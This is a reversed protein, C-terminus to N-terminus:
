HILGPRRSRKSLDTPRATPWKWARLLQPILLITDACVALVLTGHEHLPSSATHGVVSAFKERKESPCKDLVALGSNLTSRRRHVLPRTM